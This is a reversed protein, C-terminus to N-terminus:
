VASEYLQKGTAISWTQIKGTQANFAAFFGDKERWILYDQKPGMGLFNITNRHAFSMIKIKSFDSILSIRESFDSFSLKSCIGVNASVLKYTEISATKFIRTVDFVYLGSAMSSTPVPRGQDDNPMYRIMHKGAQKVLCYLYSSDIFHMSKINVNRITM